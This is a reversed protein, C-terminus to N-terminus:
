VLFNNTMYRLNIQVDHTKHQLGVGFIDLVNSREERVGALMKVIRPAQMIEPLDRLKLTRMWLIFSIVAVKISHFKFSSIHTFCSTWYRANMLYRISEGM